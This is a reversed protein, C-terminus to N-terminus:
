AAGGAKAPAAEKQRCDVGRLSVATAQAHDLFARVSKTYAEIRVAIRLALEQAIPDGAEKATNVWVKRGREFEALHRDYEALTPTNM